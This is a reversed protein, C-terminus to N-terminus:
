SRRRGFGFFRHETKAPEAASRSAGAPAANGQSSSRQGRPSDANRPARSNQSPGRSRRPDPSGGRRDQRDSGEERPPAQATMDFGEAKKRVIGRGLFRELARLSGQDEGMVFSIAEGIAKARGTRGIRHVYDEHHPPFDYNVVHSIGDVDIGRAAIDTAVLVRVKGEKFDQLARLRQNQSRNSHLTATTIKSQELRRAIRDAGHKTRTFVLVMNFADDQLLHVLLGQKLHHSIEYVFQTVTEAPNSRRGIEVIKPAQLFEHTLKEIEKSLTASFFLTQRQRPLLKVIQRIAPVFGMDLMRDAEDLVLYQIHAFSRERGRILDLLRGPTAIVIDVGETLAKIQSRESVGGYITAIKLPLYKAYARVNEEIQVVLERTPAVVLMQIRAGEKKNDAMKTLLPLVFAATKGTGTQAIGILDNGELILPIAAAQIPTPETYGTEAIAKLITASLGLTRFPM